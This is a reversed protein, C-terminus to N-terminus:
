TNVDNRTRGRRVLFGEKRNATEWRLPPDKVRLNHGVRLGARSKVGRPGFRRRLVIAVPGAMGTDLNCITSVM